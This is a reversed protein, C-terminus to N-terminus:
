VRVEQSRTMKMMMAEDRPRRPMGKTIATVKAQEM